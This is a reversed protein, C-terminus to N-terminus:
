LHVLGVTRDVSLTKQYALLAHIRCLSNLLAWAITGICFGIDLRLIAGCYQGYSM